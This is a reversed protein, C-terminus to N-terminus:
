RRRRKKKKSGTNTNKNRPTIAQNDAPKAKKAPEAPEPPPTQNPRGDIRFIVVQQGLRFLNSTTWYLVLGAPFNWSIFGIFLPMIRTILQQTQQQQRNATSPPTAGRQAHWQQVYQSTVMIILMLAYPIANVVGTQVGSSVTTGLQMGLFSDGARIADALGSPDPIFSKGDDLTDANAGSLVRFLAFWIPMQVLLPVLCGFPTAGAERQVRMLEQQMKEPKDKLEKQIRRIEPQITQFARTARTQKLTLPFLVLNIGITLLMIAVGFSPIIDYLVSLSSGLFREIAGFIDGILNM